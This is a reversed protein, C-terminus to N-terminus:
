SFELDWDDLSEERKALLNKVLKKQFEITVDQEKGREYLEVAFTPPPYKDEKPLDSWNQRLETLERVLQVGLLVREFKTAKQIDEDAKIHVRGSQQIDVTLTQGSVQFKGAVQNPFKAKLLGQIFPLSQFIDTSGTIKASKGFYDRNSGLLGVESINVMTLGTEFPEDQWEKYLLWLLFLPDFELPEIRILRKDDDGENTIGVVENVTGMAKRRDPRAGQVMLLSPLLWYLYATHRSVEKGTFRGDETQIETDGSFEERVYERDFLEAALKRHESSLRANESEFNYQDFYSELDIDQFGNKPGGDYEAELSPLLEDIRDRIAEIDSEDVDLNAPATTYLGNFVLHGSYSFEIADSASEESPM